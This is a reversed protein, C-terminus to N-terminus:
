VVNKGKLMRIYIILYSVCFVINWFTVGWHKFHLGWLLMIVGGIFAYVWGEKHARPPSGYLLGFTIFSYGVWDLYPYLFSTIQDLM